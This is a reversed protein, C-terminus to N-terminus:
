RRGKPKRASKRLSTTGATSGPPNTSTAGARSAAARRAARSPAPAEGTLMGSELMREAAEPGIAFHFFAYRSLRQIKVWAVNDALLEDLATGLVLRIFDPEDEDSLQLRALDAPGGGATHPPPPPPAPGGGGGTAVKEGLNALGTLYLGTEADPSPIRYVKGDVPVELGDDDLFASLDKFM